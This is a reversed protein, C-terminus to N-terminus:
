PSQQNTGGSVSKLKQKRVAFAHSGIFDQFLMEFGGDNLEITDKKLEARLFATVKQHLELATKRDHGDQFAEPHARELRDYLMSRYSDSFCILKRYANMGPTCAFYADACEECLNQLRVPAPSAITTLHITAPKQHCSECLM